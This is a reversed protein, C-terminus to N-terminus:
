ALVSATAALADRQGSCIQSGASRQSRTPRQLEPTGQASRNLVQQSLLETPVEPEAPGAADRQPGPEAARASCSLPSRQGQPGPQAGIHAWSLGEAAPSAPAAYPGRAPAAYPQAAARWQSGPQSGPKSDPATGAATSTAAPFLAAQAPQQLASARHSHPRM